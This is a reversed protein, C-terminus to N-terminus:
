PSLSRRRNSMPIARWVCRVPERPSQRLSRCVLDGYYDLDFHARNVVMLYVDRYIGGYFTFDAKQPYVRDNVSNDATVELLNEKELM